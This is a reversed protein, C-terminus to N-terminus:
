WLTWKTNQKLCSKNLSALSLLYNPFVTVGDKNVSVMKLNNVKGLHSQTKVVFVSHICINLHPAAITFNLWRLLSMPLEIM